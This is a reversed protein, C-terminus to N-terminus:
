KNRRYKQLRNDYDGITKDYYYLKDNNLIVIANEHWEINTIKSNNYVNMEIMLVNNIVKYKNISLHKDKGIISMKYTGNSFFHLQINPYEENIWRGLIIDNNNANIGSLGFLISVIVIITKSKM